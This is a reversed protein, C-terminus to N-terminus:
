FLWKKAVGLTGLYDAIHKHRRRIACDRATHGTTMTANINAGRQVLLKVIAMHGECAATMLPTFDGAGRSELAAGQNLLFTVCEIHGAHVARHLPSESLHDRGDIGSFLVTKGNVDAGAEVLARVISFAGIDIASILPPILLMESHGNTAHGRSQKISSIDIANVKNVDAGNEILTLAMPLCEASIALSLLTRGYEDCSNVDVGISIFYELLHAHGRSMASMLASVVPPSSTDPLYGQVARIKLEEVRGNAIADLLDDSENV